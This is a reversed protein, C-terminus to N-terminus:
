FCRSCAWHDHCAGRTFDYMERGYYLNSKEVVVRRDRKKTHNPDYVCKPCVKAQVQATNKAFRHEHGAHCLVSLTELTALTNMIRRREGNDRDREVIGRCQWQWGQRSGMCRENNHHGQIGDTKCVLKLFLKLFIECDQEIDTGSSTPRCGYSSRCGNMTTEEVGTRGGTHAELVHRASAGWTRAESETAAM